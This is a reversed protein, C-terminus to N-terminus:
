HAKANVETIADDLMKTAAAGQITDKLIARSAEVAADVAADRVARVADAEAIAIQEEASKLRQAVSTEISKRADDAAREADAKAKAVIENAQRQVDNHRREFEALKRQAEERLRRAEELQRRIEAARADLMDGLLKPAGVYVLVGVFAIFAVLVWTEANDLALFGGALPTIIATM